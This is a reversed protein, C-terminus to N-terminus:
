KMFMYLNKGERELQLPVEGSASPLPFPYYKVM